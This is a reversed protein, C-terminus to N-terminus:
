RRRENAGVFGKRVAYLTLEVRDRLGLKQFINNLHTKVTGEGVGLKEAVEANRRGLAVERVIERERRTLEGEGGGKRLGATIEAQLSPPLWVDGALATRIADMLTSLAFRKFVIGRAGARLATVADEVRESATVIVVTVREALTEIDVFAARDMQLDLLLVECEVSRLTSLLDDARELEAVVRVEPQLRLMSRLGERFLAHDDAIAVRIIESM